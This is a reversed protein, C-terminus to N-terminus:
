TTGTERTCARALIRALAVGPKKVCVVWTGNQENLNETEIKRTELRTGNTSFSVSLGASIRSILKYNEDELRIVVSRRYPVDNGSWHCSSKRKRAEFKDSFKSQRKIQAIQTQILRDLSTNTSVAILTAFANSFRKWSNTESCFSESPSSSRPIDVILFPFYFDRHFNRNVESFLCAIRQVNERLHKVREEDNWGFTMTEMETPRISGPHGSTGCPPRDQEMYENGVHGMFLM